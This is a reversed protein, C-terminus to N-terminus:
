AEEEEPKRSGLKDDLYLIASPDSGAMRVQALVEGVNKEEEVQEDLFWQLHSLTAHDKAASALEYLENISHTNEEEQRLAQKFVAAANEYTAAPKPIANLKVDGGRDLLYNFLRMAHQNEEEYQMVCWHAFGPLDRSDFYAAMGLYVYAATFEQNIQDNIAQEIEPKIMTPQDILLSPFSAFNM